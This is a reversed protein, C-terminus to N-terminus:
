AGAEAQRVLSAPRMDTWESDIHRTCEERGAPGFVSEWGAPVAIHGPWLSYQEEANRLVLFTGDEADFPNTMANEEVPTTTHPHDDQAPRSM